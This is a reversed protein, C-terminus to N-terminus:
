YYPHNRILTISISNLFPYNVFNKRSTILISRYNPKFLSSLSARKEIKDIFLLVYALFLITLPNQAITTNLFPVGKVFNDVYIRMGIIIRKADLYNGKICVRDGNEM